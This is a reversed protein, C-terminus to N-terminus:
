GRDGPSRAAMWSVLRPWVVRPAARGLIIDVHGWRVEHDFPDLVEFQKDTSASREFCPKADHHTALPDARGVMVYLPVDVREFAAAYPFPRGSAWASMELWVEVSTWDFGLALREELLAREISGPVWGALPLGYGAVETLSYARALLRGAWATDMRLAATRLLPELRISARAIARLVENRTAFQYVGALHVLGRVPARTVVGVGVAAGLSHGVVFPRDPLAAVVRIADDVYDEFASANGAGARRSGGHGRLEVNYVDHGAAALAAPLSRGTVRWTYRNQAFGHILVVPPRTAGGPSVTREVAIPPGAGRLVLEQRRIPVRVDTHAAEDLDESSEVTFTPPSARRPRVGTM